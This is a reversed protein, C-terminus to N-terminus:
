LYYEDRAEVMARLNETPTHPAIGCGPALINVGDEICQKAEKKISDTSKGLLTASPSINGIISARKGVVQRAYRVDVKEEISLGKFGSDAMPDLIDSSDGCIHLINLGDVKSTISLYEPLVLSEFLTPPLIDPGAESDIMVVSDVGHEYLANGYEVCVETGIKLLDKFIDEQTICWMLYNNAGSLYFATAASGIMGAIIPIDDGIKERVIGAAQLVTKMRPTETIDDPIAIDQVDDKKKCPFDLQYPQTDFSGEDFRCGLTEAIVSTCFPIRVAELGAFEHAAIALTAMKEPDYNAEPWKAGALEMLDVTGTQTVACVPVKDVTEGKLSRIFRERQTMNEM